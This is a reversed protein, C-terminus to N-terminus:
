IVDDPVSHDLAQLIQTESFRRRLDELIEIDLIPEGSILKEILPLAEYPGAKQLGRWYDADNFEVQQFFKFWCGQRFIDRIIFLERCFGRCNIFPNSGNLHIIFNLDSSPCINSCLWVSSTAWEGVGDLCLVAAKNFPSPFFASAAHSQHHKTFLPTPIDKRSINGL